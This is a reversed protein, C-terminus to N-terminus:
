GATPGRPLLALAVSVKVPPGARAEAEGVVLEGAARCCCLPKERCNSM